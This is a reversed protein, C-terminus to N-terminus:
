SKGPRQAAGNFLIRFFMEGLRDPSPNGRRLWELTWNMAGFLDYRLALGQARAEQEHLWPSRSATIDRGVLGARIM